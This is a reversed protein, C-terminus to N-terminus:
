AVTASPRQRYVALFFGVAVATGLLSPVFQGYPQPQYAVLDALLALMGFVVPLVSNLHHLVPM